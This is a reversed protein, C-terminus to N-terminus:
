RTGNGPRSTGVVALLLLTGGLLQSPRLREHLFGVALATATLPELLTVLTARSPGVAQLGRFFLHYAVATPVVGLYLLLGATTLDVTASGGDALAIPGLVSGGLAFALGTRRRPDDDRDGGARGTLAVVAYSVAAATAFGVGTWSGAADTAHVGVLLALGVLALGTHSWTRGGEGRGRVADAVGVLVPAGGLAVLTATAVGAHRVGAFYWAQYSGLGIGITLLRAPAAVRALRGPAAPSRGAALLVAAAIGLRTAGLAAAGMGSGAQVAAGALGGTGWLLAAAVVATLGARRDLPAALTATM